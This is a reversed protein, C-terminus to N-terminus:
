GNADVSYEQLVYALPIAEDDRLAGKLVLKFILDAIM